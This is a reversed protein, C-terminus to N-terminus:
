DDGIESCEMDFSKANELAWNSDADLDEDPDDRKRRAMGLRLDTKLVSEKLILIEENTESHHIDEAFTSKYVYLPSISLDGYVVGLSQYALLGHEVQKVNMVKNTNLISVGAERGYWCSIYAEQKSYMLYIQGSLKFVYPGRGVNVSEDVKASTAGSLGLPNMDITSCTNKFRRVQDVWTMFTELDSSM